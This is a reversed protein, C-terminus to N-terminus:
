AADRRDRRSRAVALAVLALLGTTVVATGGLVGLAQVTGDDSIFFGYVIAGSGVLFTALAVPWLVSTPLAAALHVLPTAVLALLVFPALVSADQLVVAVAAGSVGAFVCSCGFSRWWTRGPDM